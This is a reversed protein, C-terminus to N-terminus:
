IREEINEEENILCRYIDNQAIHSTFKKKRQCAMTFDNPHIYLIYVRDDDDNDSGEGFKKELDIRSRCVSVDKRRLMWGSEEHGPVTLLSMRTIRHVLRRSTTTVTGIRSVSRDPAENRDRVLSLSLSLFSSLSHSLLNDFSRRNLLRSILLGIERIRAIIRVKSVCRYNSSAWNIM